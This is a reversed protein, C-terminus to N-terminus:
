RWRYAGAGVRPDSWMYRPLGCVAPAGKWLVDILSRLNWPGRLYEAQAIIARLLEHLDQVSRSGPKPKWDPRLGQARASELLKDTTDKLGDANGFMSSHSGAWSWVELTRTLSEHIADAHETAHALERIDQMVRRISRNSVPQYLLELYWPWDLVWSPYDEEPEHYEPEGQVVEIHAPTDTLFAPEVSAPIEANHHLHWGTEPDFCM